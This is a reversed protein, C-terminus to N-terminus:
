VVLHELELRSRRGNVQVASSVHAVVTGRLHHGVVICGPGLVDFDAAPRTDGGPRGHVEQAKVSFMPGINAANIPFDFSSRTAAKRSGAHRSFASASAPPAPPVMGTLHSFMATAEDSEWGSSASLGTSASASSRPQEGSSTTSSMESSSSRSAAKPRHQGVIVLLADRRQQRPVVDQETQRVRPRVDGLQAIGAEGGIQEPVPHTPAPDHGELPGNVLQGTLRRLDVPQGVAAVTVTPLAASMQTKSGSVIAGTGQAPGEVERGVALAQRSVGRDADRVCQTLPTGM